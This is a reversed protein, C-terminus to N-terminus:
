KIFGLSAHLLIAVDARTADRQPNFDSAGFKQNLLGLRKGDLVDQRAWDSVSGLTDDTTSGNPAKVNNQKLVRVLTAIVEEETISDEPRFESESKGKMYEHEAVAAVQASYWANVSDAFPLHGKARLDFARALMVAFQARTISGSPQFVYQGNAILGNVIGKASLQVIADTAPHGLPVDAYPTMGNPVISILVNNEMPANFGLRLGSGAHGIERKVLKGGEIALEEDVRLRGYYSLPATHLGDGHVVVKQVSYPDSTLVNIRIKATAPISTKLSSSLPGTVPSVISVGDESYTGEVVKHITDYLPHNRKYLEYVMWDEYWAKSGFLYGQVLGYHLYKMFLDRYDQNGLVRQDLEIEVGKGYRMGKWALAHFRNINDAYGEERFYYNPQQIVEDFGVSTYNDAQVASFYPIWLSLLGKQHVYANFDTILPDAYAVEEDYWYFGRFEISEFKQSHILQNAEDVYARLLKNRTELPDDPNPFPTSLFVKAKSNQGAERNKEAWEDNLAQIDKMTKNLYATWAAPDSKRYFTEKARDLTPLFVFSDFMDGARKGDKMYSVYPKMLDRTVERPNNFILAINRDEYRPFQEKALTTTLLNGVYQYHNTEKSEAQDSIDDVVRITFIADKDNNLALYERGNFVCGYTAWQNLNVTDHFNWGTDYRYFKWGDQANAVNWYKGDWMLTFTHNADFSGGSPRQLEITNVLKKSYADIQYVTGRDDLLYLFGGKYALSHGYISPAAFSELVTGEKSLRQIEGVGSYYVYIDRGLGTAIGQMENSPKKSPAFHRVVKGADPEVEWITGDKTDTVYVTNSGSVPALGFSGNTPLQSMRLLEPQPQGPQLSREVTVQHPHLAGGEQHTVLDIQTVRPTLPDEPPLTEPDALVPGSPPESAAASGAFPLLLLACLALSLWKKM